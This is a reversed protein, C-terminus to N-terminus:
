KFNWTVFESNEVTFDYDDQDFYRIQGKITEVEDASSIEADTEIDYFEFADKSKGNASVSVVPEYVDWGNCSANELSIILNRETLNELIVNIVLEGYDNLEMVGNMTIRLNEDEYLISGDGVADSSEPAAGTRGALEQKAADILAQLEGDSMGSLDIPASEDAPTKAPEAESIPMNLKDKAADSLSGAALATTGSLTLLGILLLSIWKKM